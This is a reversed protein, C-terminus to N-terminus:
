KEKLILLSLFPAKGTKIRADCSSINTLWNPNNTIHHTAGSDIIWVESRIGGNNSVLLCAKISSDKLDLYNGEDVLM